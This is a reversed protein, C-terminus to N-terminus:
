LLIVRQQTITLPPVRCGTVYETECVCYHFTKNSNSSNMRVFANKGLTSNALTPIEIVEVDTIAPVCIVTIFFTVKRYAVNAICFQMIMIQKEYM